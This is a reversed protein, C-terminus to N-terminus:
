LRPVLATKKGAVIIGAIAAGLIITVAVPGFEPVINTFTVEEGAPGSYPLSMGYGAFRLTITVPDSSDLTRTTHTAGKTKMAHAGADDLVNQGNQTVVLDYNVHEADQFVVDIDMRADATPETAYIEVITGDSLMGTATPADAPMMMEADMDDGVDMGHDAEDHHDAIEEVVIVGTMWPQIPSFYNYTGAEEFMFTYTTGPELASSKFISGADADNLIGSMVSTTISGDNNWIIESGSEITVHMPDYCPADHTCGDHDSTPMISITVQPHDAFAAPTIITVLGVLLLLSKINM